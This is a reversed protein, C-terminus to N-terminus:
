GVSKSNLGVKSLAVEYDPLKMAFSKLADIYAEDSHFNYKSVKYRYKSM